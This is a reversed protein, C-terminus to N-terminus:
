SSRSRSASPWTSRRGRRAPLLRVGHACLLVFLPLIACVVMWKRTAALYEEVPSLESIQFTWNAGCSPAPFQLGRASRFGSHFLALAAPDASGRAGASRSYRWPPASGATPRSSCAISSAARSPQTIFHFVAHEVPRRAPAASLVRSGARQRSWARFRGARANGRGPSRPPPIWAPLDAPLHGRRHAIWRVCYAWPPLGRM